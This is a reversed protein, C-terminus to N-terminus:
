APLRLELTAVGRRTANVVVHRGRAGLTRRVPTGPCTVHMRGVFTTIFLHPRTPRHVAPSCWALGSPRQVCLLSRLASEM